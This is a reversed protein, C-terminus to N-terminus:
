LIYVCMYIYKTNFRCSDSVCGSHCCWMHPTLNIQEFQVFFIATKLCLCESDVSLGNPHKCETQEQRKLDGNVEIKCDIFFLLTAACVDKLRVVSQCGM